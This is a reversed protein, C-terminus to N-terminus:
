WIEVLAGFLEYGVVAVWIIISIGAAVAAVDKIVKIREDYGTKHFDCLLEICSNMIEMSLMNGTAILLIMFETYHRFWAALALVIM